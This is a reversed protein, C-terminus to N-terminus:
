HLEPPTFPEGELVHSISSKARAQAPALIPCVTSVAVDAVVIRAPGSKIAPDQAVGASLADAALKQTRLKSELWHMPTTRM